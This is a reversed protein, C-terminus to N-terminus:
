FDNSQVNFEIAHAVSPISEGQLSLTPSMLAGTAIFLVKHLHLRKMQPLIYGTLTAASCGCGSGGSHVDQSKNDFIICGCDEYNDEININYEQKLFDIAIKKGLHGLDGSFIMDYDSPKKEMASLHRTLTDCFAPAMASGMNNADNIGADIVKGVTAATIYPGPGERGLVVAGSGTVTWQSSPPRQSGYELPFRFQKESGCFHSSTGACVRNAGSLILMSAVFLSEAMTSCAGYLGLYPIALGRAGYGTATCQNLLDGATLVDIDRNQFGGKELARTVAEKFLATEASEWTKQGFYPDKEIVDFCEGLPGEGEKKGVVSAFSLVSPCLNYKFTSLGKKTFPEM